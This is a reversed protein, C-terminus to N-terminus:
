IKFISHNLCSKSLQFLFLTLSFITSLSPQVFPKTNCKIANSHTCNGKPVKPPSFCKVDVPRFRIM